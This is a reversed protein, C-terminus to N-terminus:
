APFESLAETLPKASPWISAAPDPAPSPSTPAAPNASSTPIASIPSPSATFIGKVIGARSRRDSGQRWVLDSALLQGTADLEKLQDFTVPGLQQNNKQYYWDPTMRM